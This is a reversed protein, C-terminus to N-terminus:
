GGVQAARMMAALEIQRRQNDLARGENELTLKALEAQARLQAAQLAM